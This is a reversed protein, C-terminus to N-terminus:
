TILVYQISPCGVSVPLSMAMQTMAPHIFFQYAFVDMLIFQLEYAVVLILKTFLFFPLHDLLCYTSYWGVMLIGYRQLSSWQQLAIQTIPRFAWSPMLFGGKVAILHKHHCLSVFIVWSHRYPDVLGWKPPVSRFMFTRTSQM